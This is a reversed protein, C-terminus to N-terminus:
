AYQRSPGGGAGVTGGGGVTGRGVAAGAGVAPVGGGVGGGGGVGSGCHVHQGCHDDGLSQLPTWDPQTFQSSSARPGQHRTLLAGHVPRSYSLSPLSQAYQVPGVM